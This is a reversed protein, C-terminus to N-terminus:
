DSGFWKVRLAALDGSADLELLIRNIHERLDSGQQTAFALDRIDFSQPVMHVRDQGDTQAYYKLSPADYIVATVTGNELGAYVQEAQEWQRIQLGREAAFRASQTGRVVGVRRNRLDEPGSIAAAIGELTFASALEATFLAFMPLSIVIIVMAIIRGVAKVPAKDGYGVTSATVIAWYIGEFVGPAYKPNFTDRGREVFWILHGAIVVILFFAVVVTMNTRALARSFRNWLSPADAKGPLMIGLGSRYTPHSFDVQTERQPTATIGGIAVDLEGKIIRELKDAAGSCKVFDFKRDLQKAIRQWLEISYGQPKDGDIVFPPFPSIGIRLADDNAPRETTESDQSWAPTAIVGLGFCCTATALARFIM